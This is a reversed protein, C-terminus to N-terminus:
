VIIIHKATLVGITIIGGTVVLAGSCVVVLFIKWDRLNNNVGDPITEVDSIELPDITIPREARIFVDSEPRITTMAWSNDRNIPPNSIVIQGENIDECYVVKFFNDLLFNDLLFPYESFIIIIIILIKFWIYILNLNNNLFCRMVWFQSFIFLNSLYFHYKISKLLSNIYFM